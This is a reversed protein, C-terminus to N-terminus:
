AFGEREAESLLGACVVDPDRHSFFHEIANRWILLNTNAAPQALPYYHGDPESHRNDMHLCRTPSLPFIVTTEPNRLGRFALSPHVITVPNDSTIFVPEESFLMAWRMRMFIEAVGAARGVEELWAKKLDEESADRYAPWTSHDLDYVKGKHELQTPLEPLSSYFTVIQRHMEKWFEFQAPNRQYMVAVLLSVMKRIAPQQLDVMSTCLRRWIPHGFWNELDALKREFSYDRQGTADKPAYLYFRVAVKDIPKLEPDGATKGFRWIKNRRGNEAAFSRLYSQAVWHNRKSKNVSHKEFGATTRVRQLTAQRSPEAKEDNM